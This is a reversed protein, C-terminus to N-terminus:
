IGDNNWWVSFIILDEKGENKVKHCINSDISFIDGKSILSISSEEINIVGSGQLVFWLENAKHQDWPTEYSPAVIFKSTNVFNKKNFDNDLFLKIGNLNIKTDFMKLKM